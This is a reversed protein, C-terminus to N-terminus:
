RVLGSDVVKPRVKRFDFLPFLFYLSRRDLGYVNLKGLLGNVFIVNQGIWDFAQFTTLLLGAHDGIGLAKQCQWDYIKLM